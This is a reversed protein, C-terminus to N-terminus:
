YVIDKGSSETKIFHVNRLHCISPHAKLDNPVKDLLKKIKEKSKCKLAKRYVKEVIEIKKIEKDLLDLIQKDKENPMLQYCKELCMKAERPKNMQFYVKSLIQLPNYDYDRPNYVIIEKDPIPKRLGTLLLDEAHRLKGLMFYIEGMRLYADPYWPRITIALGLVELAKNFDQLDKYIGSVNILCLYKEEDSGSMKFFQQYNKLAEDYRRLALLATAVLWYSRPNDPHNQRYKRAIILNREAAKDAREPNTLHLIEIDPCFYSTIERNTKFDEHIEGQWEVCGDNKVIRTKLHKVTCLGNENFDYLYNMVVADIKEKVMKKVVSKLNEAGKVVDDSDIWFIYDGTAQKFNYNRAAAFDNIWEFYSVKANYKEAIKEIFGGSNEKKSTITLCIEDVYKVVSELARDLLEAEEFTPKVILCLSLKM